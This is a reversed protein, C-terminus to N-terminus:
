TGAVVTPANSCTLNWKNDRREPDNQHTNLPSTLSRATLFAILCIARLTPHFVMAFTTLTREVNGSILTSSRSTITDAGPVPELTEISSICVAHMQLITAQSRSVIRCSSRKNNRIHRRVNQPVFISARDRILTTIACRPRILKNLYLGNSSLSRALM